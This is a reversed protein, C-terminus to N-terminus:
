WLACSCLGEVDAYHGPNCQVCDIQGTLSQAHGVGCPTCEWAATEPTHSGAPCPLCAVMGNDPAYYGPECEMCGLGAYGPVCSTCNVAGEHDSSSGLPCTLCTAYGGPSPAHTGFSCNACASQGIMSQYLGADCPKCSSQGTIPQYSGISCPHCLSSGADSTYTGTACAMCLTSGLMSSSLYYGAPCPLCASNGSTNTFSGSPCVNCLALGVDSAYRGSSCSSCVTVGTTLNNATGTSCPLCSSAGVAHAAYKGCECAQCSTQGQQSAYLGATCNNCKTAGIASSWTGFDCSQCSASAVTNTYKGSGCLVCAQVSITSDYYEGAVCQRITVTDSISIYRITGNLLTLYTSFIITYTGAPARLALDTSTGTLAGFSVQGNAWSRSTVGSLTGSSSSLTATLPVDNSEPVFNGWQDFLRLTFVSSIAIGSTQQTSPRSTIELSYPTSAPVAGAGWNFPTPVNGDFSNSGLYTPGQLDCWFPSGGSSAINAAFACNNISLSTDFSYVIAGRWATSDRFQTSSLYVQGGKAYVNGGLDAGSHNLKSSTINIVCGSIMSTGIGGTIPTTSHIIGGSLRSAVTNNVTTRVLTVGGIVGPTSQECFALGGGGQNLALSPPRGQAINGNFSDTDFTATSDYLAVVGGRGAIVLGTYTPSSDSTLTNAQNYQYFQNMSKLTSGRRLHFVGGEVAKNNQHTIGSGTISIAAGTTASIWGGYRADNM